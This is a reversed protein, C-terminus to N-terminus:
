NEDDILRSFKLQERVLGLEKNTLGESMQFATRLM